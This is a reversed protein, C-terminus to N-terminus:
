YSCAQWAYGCPARQRAASRVLLSNPVGCANHTPWQHGLLHHRNTVTPYRCPCFQTGDDAGSTTAPALALTLQKSSRPRSLPSLSLLSLCWVKPSHSIQSVSRRSEVLKVEFDNSHTQPCSEISVLERKRDWLVHELPLPCLIAVKDPFRAPPLPLRTPSSARARRSGDSM